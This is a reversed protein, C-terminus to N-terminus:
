ELGLGRRIAENARTQWGKADPSKLATLADNDIKLTVQTKTTGAPRGPGRRIAKADAPIEFTDPDAAIGQRIAADEEPTPMHVKPVRAM